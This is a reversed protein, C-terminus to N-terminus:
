LEPREPPWTELVGPARFGILKNGITGLMYFGLAGAALFLVINALITLVLATM